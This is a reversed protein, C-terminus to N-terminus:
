FIWFFFFKYNSRVRSRFLRDCDWRELSVRERGENRWSEWEIEVEGFELYSWRWLLGLYFFWICKLFLKLEGLGKEFLYIIWWDLRCYECNFNRSFVEGIMKIDVNLCWFCRLYCVFYSLLEAGLSGEDKLM